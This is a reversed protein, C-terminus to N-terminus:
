GASRAANVLAIDIPQNLAVGIRGEASWAVVGAVEGVGPLEVTLPTGSTVSGGTEAMLGQESLNRIRVSRGEADDGFRLIATMLMGTRLHQRMDAADTDNDPRPAQEHTFGDM